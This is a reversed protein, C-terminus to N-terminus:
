FLLTMLQSLYKLRKNSEMKELNLLKFRISPMNKIDVDLNLLDWKPDLEVLSVLFARQNESLYDTIGNCIKDRTQTLVILRLVSM